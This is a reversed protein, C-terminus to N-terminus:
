MVDFQCDCKQLKLPELVQASANLDIHIQIQRLDERM